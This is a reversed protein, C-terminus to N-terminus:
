RRRRDTSVRESLRQGPPHPRHQKAARDAMVMAALEALVAVEDDDFNHPQTDMVCQTAHTHDTRTILPAGPYARMGGSRVIPTHGFRADELQDPIVHMQEGCITWNRPAHERPAETMDFGVRSKFYQRDRDLLSISPIPARLLRSAIRTIRDFAKSPATDLLRLNRLASLRAEEAFDPLRPTIPAPMTSQPSHNIPM